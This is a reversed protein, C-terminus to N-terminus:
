LIYRALDRDSILPELRQRVMAETVAHAEGAHEPASFSIEELLREMVTHLRRAGINEASANIEAAIEA